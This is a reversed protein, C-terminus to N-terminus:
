MLCARVVAEKYHRGELYLDALDKGLRPMWYEVKEPFSVEEPPIECAFEM